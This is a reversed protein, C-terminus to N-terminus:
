PARRLSHTKEGMIQIYVHNLLCIAFNLKHKSFNPVVQERVEVHICAVTAATPKEGKDRKPWAAMQIIGTWIESSTEWHNHCRSRGYFINRLNVNWFKNEKQKLTSADPGKVVVTNGGDGNLSGFDCRCDRATCFLAAKDQDSLYGELYTHYCVACAKEDAHAALFALIAAKSEKKFKKVMARNSSQVIYGQIRLSVSIYIYIYIADCETSVCLPGKSTTHRVWFFYMSIKCPM